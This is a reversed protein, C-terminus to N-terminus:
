NLGIGVDKTGICSGTRKHVDKKVVNSSDFSHWFGVCAHLMLEALV